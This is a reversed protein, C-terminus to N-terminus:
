EKAPLMPKIDAKKAKEIADMRADSKDLRANIKLMGKGLQDIAALIQQGTPEAPDVKAEPESEKVPAPAAAPPRAAPVSASGYDVPSYGAVFLPDIVLVKRVAVVQVAQVAVVPAVYVRRRAARIAVPCAFLPGAIALLALIAIPKKM